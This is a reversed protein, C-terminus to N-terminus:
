QTLGRNLEPFDNKASTSFNGKPKLNQINDGVVRPKIKKKPTIADEKSISTAEWSCFNWAGNRFLLTASIHGYNKM